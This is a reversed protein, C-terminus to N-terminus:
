YKELYIKLISTLVVIAYTNGMEPVFTSMERIEGRHGKLM